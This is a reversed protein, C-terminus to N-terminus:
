KPGPRAQQRMPSSVFSSPDTESHGPSDKAASQVSAAKHGRHSGCHCRGTALCFVGAIAAIVAIGGGAALGAIVGVDPDQASSGSGSEGSPAQPSPSASAAQGSSTRPAPSAVPSPTPQAADPGAGAALAALGVADAVCRDGDRYWGGACAECATGDYGSFCRCTGAVESCAGRGSCASGGATAAPCPQLVIPCDAPCCTAASGAASGASCAEGSECAGNGCLGAVSVVGVGVAPSGPRAAALVARAELERGSLGASAPASITVTVAQGAAQLARRGPAAAAPAVTSGTGALSLADAVDAAVLQARADASSTGLAAAAGGAAPVAQARAEIGCAGVGGCVGCADVERGPQCCLGAADLSGRCCIGSADVARGTGGCIGCADLVGDGCCAGASDLTANAGACCAGTGNVVGSPCCAGDGDTVASACSALSTNCRRGGWGAPCSCAGDSACQGRACVVGGCGDSCERRCPRTAAPAAAEPCRGRAAAFGDPLACRVSRSQSGFACPAAADCAGWAGAEWSPDPDAACAGGSCARTAPPAESASCLSANDARASALLATDPLASTVLVCGVDRTTACAASCAEWPGVAWSFSSCPADAVAADCLRVSPPRAQAGCRGDPAAAGRSSMCAVQRRQTRRGCSGSCPQWDASTWSFTECAAAACAATTPTTAAAPCDTLAAAPSGDPGLCALTRSRAGSGGCAASGAAGAGDSVVCASWAGVLLRPSADAAAGEGCSAPGLCARSTAPLALGAAACDAPSASAALRAAGSPLALVAAPRALANLYASSAACGLLLSQTGQGGCRASCTGNPTTTYASARTVREVNRSCTVAPVAPSAAAAPDYVLALLRSSAAPLASSRLTVVLRRRRAARDASSTADDVVGASAPSQGTIAAVASWGDPTASATLGLAAAAAARPGEATCLAAVAAAPAAVVRVTAADSAGTVVLEATHAAGLVAVAGGSTLELVSAAPGAFDASPPASFSAGVVEVVVPEASLTWRWGLGRVVTPRAAARASFPAFSRPAFGRPAPVPDAARQGDGVAWARVPVLSGVPSTEPEVVAASTTDDAAVPLWGVAHTVTSNPSGPGDSRGLLYLYGNTRSERVVAVIRADGIVGLFASLARISQKPRFAGATVLGSRQFVGAGNDNLNAYFFWSAREYGWRSALLLGRVAYLAQARASVCEPNSCSQGEGASDWGYEDLVLPLRPAVADRLRAVSKLNGFISAPDEPHTGTRGAPGGQWSYAHVKLADLHQLHSSNLSARMTEFTQFHHPTVMVAPDAAKAGRAMGLLVDSYLESPLHWEENGVNIISVDGTGRLPGFHGAFAAGFRRSGEYPTLAASASRFAAESFSKFMVASTVELGALRWERYEDDWDLWDQALSSGSRAMRSYDPTRDPYPTDWAWTHYMRGHSAVSSFTSPGKAAAHDSYASLGWGWVGNIGLTDALTAPAPGAAAAAPGHRGHPGWLSLEAAQVRGWLRWQGAYDAEKPEDLLAILRVAQAVAGDPLTTDVVARAPLAAFGSATNPRAPSSGAVAATWSAGAPASPVPVARGLPDVAWTANADWPVLPGLESASTAVASAAVPAALSASTELRVSAIRVVPAGYSGSGAATTDHPAVTVGHTVVGAPRPRTLLSAVAEFCPAARLGVDAVALSSAEAESRTLTIVVSAHAGAPLAAVLGAAAARAAAPVPFVVTPRVVWFPRDVTSQAVWEARSLSALRASAGTSAVLDVTVSANGDAPARALVVAVALARSAQDPRRLRFSMAAVGTAADHAVTVVTRPSGDTLGAAGPATGSAMTPVIGALANLGTRAGDPRSAFDVHCSSSTWASLATVDLLAEPTYGSTALAVSGAQATWSTTLEPPEAAEVAIAVSSAPEIVASGVMASSPTGASAQPGFAQASDVATEDPVGAGASAPPQADVSARPDILLPQAPRLLSYCFGLSPSCVGERSAGPPCRYPADAPCTSNRLPLLSDRWRHGATASDRTPVWACSDGAFAGAPGSCSCSSENASGAAPLCAGHSRCAHPCARRECRDGEYGPHCRCGGATCTGRGGSCDGPCRPVALSTAADYAVGQHEPLRCTFADCPYPSRANWYRFSSCTGDALCVGRGHCANDCDETGCSPGTWGASCLCKGTAPSCTGHAGCGGPCPTSGDGPRRVEIVLPLGSARVTWRGGGSSTVSSSDSRAGATGGLRVAQGPAALASAAQGCSANRGPVALVAASVDVQLPVCIDSLTTPEDEAAYVARGMWVVAHTVAATGAAGRRGLLYVYGETESESLVAVVGSSGAAAMLGRLAGLSPKPRFAADAGRALGSRQFVGDGRGSLDAYFFWSAHEYGDRVALLLGRVAYAAQASETVCESTGCSADEADWGFEDLHLPVGPAAADRLNATARIKAWSSAPDEPHTGTRGAPGGRWSYAHSKFADLHQLQSTSMSVAIDPSEYHHPSVRLLPDAAKAGQAFGRLMDEYMGHPLRWEENGVNVSTVDGTGRLPGFHRAFSFGMDFAAEATSINVRSLAGGAALVADDTRGDLKSPVPLFSVAGGGLQVAATIGGPLRRAWAGYEVDHNLWWHAGTGKGCAMPEYGTPLRADRTDWAVNHYNRGASAADAYRRLGWSPGHGSSYASTGWGWIGNVGLVSSLPLALPRFPPPPPSVGEPSDYVNLNWIFGRSNLSPSLAIVHRVRVALTLPVPQPVAHDMVAYSESPLSAELSHWAIRGTSPDRRLAEWSSSTVAPEASSGPQQPQSGHRVRVHSVPRPRDLDARLWDTCPRGATIAAVERVRIGGPDTTRLELRRAVFGATRLTSLVRPFDHFRAPVASPRRAQRYAGRDTAWPGLAAAGAARVETVSVTRTGFGSDPRWVDLEVETLGSAAGTPAASGADPVFRSLAPVHPAVVATTLSAAPDVLAVLRVTHGDAPPFIRWSVQVVDDIRGLFVGSSDADTGGARFALAAAALDFSVTAGTTANGKVAATDVTNGNTAGALATGERKGDHTTCAEPVSQCLGLLLNVDTRNSLSRQCGLVPTWADSAFDGAVALELSPSAAADSGVVRAIGAGPRLPAVSRAAAARDPRVASSLQVGLILRSAKLSCAGLAAACEPLPELGAARAALITSTYNAAAAPNVRPAQMRPTCNFPRSWPCGGDPRRLGRQTVPEGAAAKPSSLHAARADKDSSGSNVHSGSWARVLAGRLLPAGFARYDVAAHQDSPLSPHSVGRCDHGVSGPRCECVARGTSPHAVCRGRGWCGNPCAPECRPGARGEPCVCAGSSACLAGDPCAAASSPAAGPALCRECASGARNAPCLCSAAAATGACVGVGSCASSPAAALGAAVRLRLAAAAGRLDPGAPCSAQPEAPEAAPGTELTVDFLQVKRTAYGDTGAEDMEWVVRFDTAVVATANGGLLGGPASLAASPEFGAALEQAAASSSPLVVSWEALAVAAPGAARLAEVTQAPGHPAATLRAAEVRLGSWSPQGTHKLSIRTAAVPRPFHLSVWEECRSGLPAAAVETVTFALCGPGNGAYCHGVAEPAPRLPALAPSGANDATPPLLGPVAGETTASRPATPWGAAASSAVPVAAAPDTANANSVTRPLPASRALGTSPDRVTSASTDSSAVLAVAVVPRGATLESITEESWQMSKFRDERALVAVDVEFLDHMWASDVGAPALRAAAGSRLTGGSVGSSAALATGNDNAGTLDSPLIDDASAASLGLRRALEARIAADPAGAELRSQGVPWTANGKVILSLRTGAPANWIGRLRFRGLRTPTPLTALFFASRHGSSTGVSAGTYAINGDTAAALTENAASAAWSPECSSSCLGRSCAHLLLNMAADRHWSAPCSGLQGGTRTNGDAIAQSVDDSAFQGAPGSALLQPLTSGAEAGFAVAAALVALAQRAM